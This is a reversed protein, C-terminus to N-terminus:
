WNLVTEKSVSYTFQIRCTYIVLKEKPWNNSYLKSEKVFGRELGNEIKGGIM